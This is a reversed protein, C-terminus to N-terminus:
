SRVARVDYKSELNYWDVYGRNFYVLWADSSSRKDSSWCRVQRKNFIPNIYLNNSQREPKLLSMLEPITPLRWDSYGSFRERNLKDIYAQAAQYTMYEGSGSKQWMLGTAHDIVVDGDGQVEFDNEIYKRPRQDEDLRFVEKFEGGSVMRPKSRLQIRPIPTATPFPTPTAALAIVKDLIADDNPTIKLYSRYYRLAKQPNGQREAREAWSKYAERMKQIQQLAHANAPDLRLVELYLDFANTKEPTTFWQRDFYADAQKLLPTIKQELAPITPLPTPTPLQPTPTPPLPPQPPFDAQKGPASENTPQAAFNMTAPQPPLIM